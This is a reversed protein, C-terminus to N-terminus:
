IGGYFEQRLKASGNQTAGWWSNIFEAFSDCDRRGDCQAKSVFARLNRMFLM